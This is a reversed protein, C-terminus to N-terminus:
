PQGGELADLWQNPNFPTSILLHPAGKLKNEICYALRGFEDTGTSVSFSFCESTGRELSWQDTVHKLEDDSYFQAALRFGIPQYGMSEGLQDMMEMELMLRSIVGTRVAATMNADEPAAAIAKLCWAKWDARDRESLMDIAAWTSQDLKLSLRKGSPLPLNRQTTEM